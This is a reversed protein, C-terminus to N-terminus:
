ECTDQTYATTISAYGVRKGVTTGSGDQTTKPRSWKCIHSINNYYIPDIIKAHNSEIFQECPTPYTNTSLIMHCLNTRARRQHARSKSMDALIVMPALQASPWYTSDVYWPWTNRDERTCWWSISSIPRTFIPDTPIVRIQIVHIATAILQYRGRWVRKTSYM